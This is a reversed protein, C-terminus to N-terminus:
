KKVTKKKNENVSWKTTAPPVTDTAEPEVDDWTSPRSNEGFYKVDFKEFTSIITHLEHFAQSWQKDNGAETSKDELAYLLDLLTMHVQNILQDVQDDATLAEKILQKLQNITMKM